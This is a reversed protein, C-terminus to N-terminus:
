GKNCCVSKTIADAILELSEIAQARKDQPINEYVKKFYNNMTLEIEDFMKKGNETLSITVYRRDNPDLERNALGKNVINNVNRSMTSNDVNLKEALENLSINCARGIETIAHCQTFSVGCCSSKMENLIGLKAEIQRILERLEKENNSIIM